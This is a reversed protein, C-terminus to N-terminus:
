SGMVTATWLTPRGLTLFLQWQLHKTMGELSSKDRGPYFSKSGFWVAVLSNIEVFSRSRWSGLDGHSVKMTSFLLESVKQGFSDGPFSIPSVIGRIPLTQQRKNSSLDFCIWFFFSSWGRLLRLL